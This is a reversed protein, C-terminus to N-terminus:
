SHWLRVLLCLEELIKCCAVPTGAFYIGDDALGGVGGPSDLIDSVLKTEKASEKLGLEFHDFIHCLNEPWGPEWPLWSKRLICSLDQPLTKHM